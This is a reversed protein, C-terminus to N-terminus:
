LGLSRVYFTAMEARTLLRGPCYETETCGITIGANALRNIAEEFPNDGDDNFFDIGDPNQYGFTRVLLEAMEDRELPRDPCFETETCGFGIGATHILDIENQFLHGAVDTYAPEGSAASLHVARAIFAAMEGRTIDMEPCFENDFSCGITIGELFIKDIDPEHVSYDDDKFSGTWSPASEAALLYPYPNIRTDGQWIEFHLHPGVNEANGSDGAWGILQGAEVYTGVQIGPAIGWAQGDDSYSGDPNQTDNNLHIYQTAWGGGHDIKLFCCPSGIWQVTGAAAALVPLGKVGNAMIDTAQHTRSCGTGRCSDFTDSYHNEGDLPFVIASPDFEAAQAPPVIAVFTVLVAVLVSYRRLSLLTKTPIDVLSPLM